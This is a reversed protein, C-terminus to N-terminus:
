KEVEIEVTPASVEHDVGEFVGVLPTVVKVKYKGKGLPGAPARPYGREPPTGKYKEPAWRMKVAEWPVRMRATGAAAITVKATKPETPPPQTAGKPPPPPKGAPMDVRKGKADYTEVEFRPMPDIKFKLTMPDKTKNAFSVILDAKAGAPLKTPSAAVSVALKGKVDVPQISDPRTSPEECANKLLVEELNGIEFGLCEDRKEGKDGDDGKKESSAKEGAAKTDDSATENTRDDKKDANDATEPDKQKGGCGTALAALALVTGISLVSLRHM